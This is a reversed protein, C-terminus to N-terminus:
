FFETQESAGPQEPDPPARRDPPNASRGPGVVVEVAQGSSDGGAGVDAGALRHALRASLSASCRVSCAFGTVSAGENTINLRRVANM